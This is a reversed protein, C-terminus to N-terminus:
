ADDIETIRVSQSDPKRYRELDVGDLETIAQYDVVGRRTVQQVRIGGGAVNRKNALHILSDRHSKKLQEIKKEEAALKRYEHVHYLFDPDTQQIYDRETLEPETFTKRRENFEHERILLEDQYQKDAHVLVSVGRKGDFSFYVMTELKLVLMIHQLQPFYKPPILGQLALAHDAEGPCKIEVATLGDFSLGDLSAFQWSFKTSEVVVPRVFIGSQQRFAQRATEELDSGRQMAYSVLEETLGWKVQMLERPTKFGVGMICPADSAGIGNRRYALWVDSGQELPLIQYTM